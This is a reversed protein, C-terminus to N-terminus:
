FYGCCSYHDAIEIPIVYSSLDRAPVNTWVHDLISYKTIENNPNYKAPMGILPYLGLVLMDIFETIYTLKLLNLLNLNFDGCVVMPLGM